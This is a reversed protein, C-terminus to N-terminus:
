LNADTIPPIEKTAPRNSRPEVTTGKKNKRVYKPNPFVNNDSSIIDNKAGNTDDKFEDKWNRNRSFKM